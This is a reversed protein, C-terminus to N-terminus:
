STPSLGAAISRVMGVFTLLWAVLATWLFVHPITDLFGLSMAHEMRFIAM